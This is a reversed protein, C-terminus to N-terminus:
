PRVQRQQRKYLYALSSHTANSTSVFRRTPGFFICRAAWKHPSRQLWTSSPSAVNTFFSRSAPKPLTCTLAVAILPTSVDSRGDAAWRVDEGGRQRAITM